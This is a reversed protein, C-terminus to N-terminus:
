NEVIGKMIEYFGTNDSLSSFLPSKDGWVFYSVDVGTHSDTSWSVGPMNQAGNNSTVTLGGTEHDGTVIILVDDRGEAWLLLQQVTHEFELTEFVAREIDNAHCAHDIRGGEVLLFFGDPDQDLAEAAYLAMESLHPAGGLGDWEYPMHDDGFVGALPPNM